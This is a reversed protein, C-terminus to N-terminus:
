RNFGTEYEAKETEQFEFCFRGTFFRGKKYKQQLLVKKTSSSM